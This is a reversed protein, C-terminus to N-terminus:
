GVRTPFNNKTLWDELAQRVVNQIIFPEQKKHKRELCASEIANKLRAPVRASLYPTSTTEEEELLAERTKDRARRRDGPREVQPPEAPSPTGAPEGPSVPEPVSPAPPLSSSAPMPEPIVSPPASSPPPPPSSPELVRITSNPPMNDKMFGQEGTNLETSIKGTPPPAANTAELLSPRPAKSTKGAM